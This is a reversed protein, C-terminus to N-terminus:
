LQYCGRIGYVKMFYQWYKFTDNYKEAKYKKAKHYNIHEWSVVKNLKRGKGGLYDGLVYTSINKGAQYM